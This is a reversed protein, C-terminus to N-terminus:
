KVGSLLKKALASDPNEALLAEFEKAAGERVGARAYLVGMLVHSGPWKQKAERLEAVQHDDIVRFSAYPKDLSPARVRRGDKVAEVMWNFVHGRALPKGPTWNTRTTQSSEAEDGTETDRIL